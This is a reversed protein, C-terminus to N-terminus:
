LHIDSWFSFNIEAAQLKATLYCQNYSTSTLFTATFFEAGVLASISALSLLALHNVFNLRHM